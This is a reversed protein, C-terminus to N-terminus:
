PLSDPITPHIHIAYNILTIAFLNTNRRHFLIDILARM